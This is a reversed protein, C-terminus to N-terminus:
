ADAGLDSADVWRIFDSTCSPCLDIEEGVYVSNWKIDLEETTAGCRDCTTTTEVAM